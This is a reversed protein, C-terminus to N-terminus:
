AWDDEEEDLDGWDDEECGCTFTSVNLLVLDLRYAQRRPSYQQREVTVDVDAPFAVLAEEYDPIYVSSGSVVLPGAPPVNCPVVVTVQVSVSGSDVCTHNYEGNQEALLDRFDNELEDRLSLPDSESSGWSAEGYDISIDMETNWDTLAEILNEIYTRFSYNDSSPTDRRLVLTGDLAQAVLSPLNLPFWGAPRGNVYTVVHPTTEGDQWRNWMQTIYDGLRQGQEETLETVSTNPNQQSM